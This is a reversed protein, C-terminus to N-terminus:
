MICSKFNVTKCQGVLTETQLSYSIISKPETWHKRKASKSQELQLLTMRM